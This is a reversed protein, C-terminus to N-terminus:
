QFQRQSFGCGVGKGRFEVPVFKSDDKGRNLLARVEIKKKNKGFSYIINTYVQTSLSYYYFSSNFNSYFKFKFFADYIIIIWTNM